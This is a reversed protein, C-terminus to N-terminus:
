AANLFRAYIYSIAECIVTRVGASSLWWQQPDYDLNPTAIVGIKLNPLAQKFLLWSRRAHVDLTFLNIATTNTQSDVLWQQLAIASAYTRDKIVQPASVVILYEQKLGLKQLTAGALTAYNQYATLYSGIPLAGGTTIIKQYSGREFENLAQQLAYDPLWGEVVLVDANVPSILALFPQVFTISVVGTALISLLAIAWGQWTLTWRMRRQLLRIKFRFYKNM